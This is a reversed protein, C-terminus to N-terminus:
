RETTRGGKEPGTPGRRTEEKIASSAPNEPSPQKNAMKRDHSKAMNSHHYTAVEEFTDEVFFRVTTVENQQGIRYIRALAQEEVTPNRHLQLGM